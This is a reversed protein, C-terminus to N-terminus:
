HAQEYGEIAAKIVNQLDPITVKGKTAKELKEELKNYTDPMSQLLNVASTIRKDWKVLKEYQEETMKPSILAQFLGNFAGKKDHNQTYQFAIQLIDATNTFGSDMASDTALQTAKGLNLSGKVPAFVDGLRQNYTVGYIFFVQALHFIMNM